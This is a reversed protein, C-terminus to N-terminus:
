RKNFNIRSAEFTMSGGGGSCMGSGKFSIGYNGGASTQFNGNTNILHNGSSNHQIDQKASTTQSADTIQDINGKAKMSIKGSQSMITIDQECALVINKRNLDLLSNDTNKLRIRRNESDLQIENGYDDGIFVNSNDADICILYRHKEGDAASTSIRIRHSRRTDLEIFYSNDETVDPDNELSGSIGIRYTETRRNNDNRGTEKWWWQDSDGFNLLTVQEGKRIDPPFTRNSTDGRWSATIYNSTKLNSSFGGTTSNQTSIENNVETATLNGKVFPLLEPSYVLLTRSDQEKDAVAIGTLEVVNTTRSKTSM